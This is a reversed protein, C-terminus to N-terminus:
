GGWVEGMWLVKAGAKNRSAVRVQPHPEGMENHQRAAYVGNCKALHLTPLGEAQALRDLTDQIHAKTESRIWGVDRWPQAPNGGHGLRISQRPARRGKNEALITEVETMSLLFRPLTM